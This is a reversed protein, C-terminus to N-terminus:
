PNGYVTHVIRTNTYMHVNELKGSAHQNTHDVALTFSGFLGSHCISVAGIADSEVPRKVKLLFNIKDKVAWKM